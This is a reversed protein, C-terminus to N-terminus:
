RGGGLLLRVNAAARVVRLRRRSEETVAHLLGRQAGIAVNRAFAEGCRALTRDVDDRFPRMKANMEVGKRGGARSSMDSHYGAMFLACASFSVREDFM